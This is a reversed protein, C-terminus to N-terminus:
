WAPLRSVFDLFYRCLLAIGYNRSQIDESIHCSWFPLIVMKTMVDCRKAFRDASIVSSALFVSSFAARAFVGDSMVVVSFGVQFVTLEQLIHLSSEVISQVPWITCLLEITYNYTTVYTM